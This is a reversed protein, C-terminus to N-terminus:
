KSEAFVARYLPLVHHYILIGSIALLAAFIMRALQAPVLLAIGNMDGGGFFGCLLSLYLPDLLLLALTIYYCCAKILKSSIRCIHKTLLTFIWAAALAAAPGALCFFALQTDSMQEAFVDIQIGLGLFRVAKFVGIAKAYLFHAGEHILYYVVVASFLGIYQRFQKEKTNMQANQKEMLIEQVPLFLVALVASGDSM